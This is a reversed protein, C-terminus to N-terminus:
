VDIPEGLAGDCSSGPEPSQSGEQFAEVFQEVRPDDVGDVALQRGWATLVIPSSLGPYPAVLIHSQGAALEELTAIDAEPLDESYSIWVAGHEISHVANENRVPDRYVGCNQWAPDHDGGVPPSQPYDVPDTTHGNSLDDYIAVGEIEDGSSSDDDGGCAVLTAGLILALAVFPLRTRPM